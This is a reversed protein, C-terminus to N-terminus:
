QQQRRGRARACYLYRGVLERRQLRGQQVLRRLADKTAVRVVADLEDTFYGAPSQTVLAAATDLLTGHRSFHIDRYAWLGLDDYQALPDLTYYAGCHSYSTRYPLAALKRFVTVAVTTGLATKLQPLTAVPAAQFLAELRDASFRITNM